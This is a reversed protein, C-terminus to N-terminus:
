IPGTPAEAPWRGAEHGQAPGGLRGKLGFDRHKHGTAAWFLKSSTLNPWNSSRVVRSVALDRSGAEWRKAVELLFTEIAAMERYGQAHKTLDDYITATAKGQYMFYEAVTAGTYPAVFQLTAPEDAGSM